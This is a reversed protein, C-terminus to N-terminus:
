GNRLMKQVIRMKKAHTAHIQIAMVTRMSTKRRRSIEPHTFARQTTKTITRGNMPTSAYRSM